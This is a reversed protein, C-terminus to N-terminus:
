DAVRPRQTKSIGAGFLLHKQWEAGFLFCRRKERQSVTSIGDIGLSDVIQFAFKWLIVGCYVQSFTGIPISPSM